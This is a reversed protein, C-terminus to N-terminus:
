PLASCRLAIWRYGSPILVSCKLFSRTLKREKRLLKVILVRQAQAERSISPFIM